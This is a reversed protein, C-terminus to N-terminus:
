KVASGSIACPDLPAPKSLIPRPGVGCGGALIQKVRKLAQFFEPERLYQKDGIPRLLEYVFSGPKRELSDVAAECKTCDDFHDVITYEEDESLTGKVFACLEEPLLCTQPSM